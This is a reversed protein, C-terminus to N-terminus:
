AFSLNGWDRDAWERGLVIPRSLSRDGNPRLQLLIGLDRFSPEGKSTFLLEHGRDAMSDIWPALESPPRGTLSTDGFNIQPGKLPDVAVAALKFGDRDAYYAAIGVTRFEARVMVRDALLTADPVELAASVEGRNMGFVLPGVSLLPELQWNPRDQSISKEFWM